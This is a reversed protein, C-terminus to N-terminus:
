LSTNSGVDWVIAQGRKEGCFSRMHNELNELKLLIEIQSM